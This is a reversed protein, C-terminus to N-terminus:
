LKVAEHISARSQTTPTPDRQESGSRRCGRGPDCREIVESVKILRSVFTRREKHVKNWTFLRANDRSFHILMNDAVDGLLSPTKYKQFFIVLLTTHNTLM